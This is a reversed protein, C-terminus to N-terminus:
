KDAEHNNNIRKNNNKQKYKNWLNGKLDGKWVLISRFLKIKKKDINLSAKVKKM